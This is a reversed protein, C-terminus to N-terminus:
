KKLKKFPFGLLSLLEFGEKTTKATTTITSELGLKREVDDPKIEAFAILEKFGISYNGRQDFAKPNLGRFDRVRPLTIKILRELFDWMKKGRLTVKLGVVMGERIKFNSISKKALTKIPQQGTIQALVKQAYTIYEKDKLGQGVGINLVVKEITPVSINNKYGFKEKLQPQIEERYKKLLNNM